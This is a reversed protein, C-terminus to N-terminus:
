QPSFLALDSHRWLNFDIILQERREFWYLSISAHSFHRPDLWLKQSLWFTFKSSILFSNLYIKIIFNYKGQQFNFLCLKVNQSFHKNYVIILLVRLFTFWWFEFCVFLTCHNQFSSFYIRWIKISEKTTILKGRVRDTARGGCSRGLARVTLLLTKWHDKPPMVGILALKEVNRVWWPWNMSWSIM